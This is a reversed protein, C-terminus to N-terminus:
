KVVIRAPVFELPVPQGSVGTAVGSVTFTAAGPGVTTFSIAGLLGANSAGPQAASRSWAADVRGAAADVRPVFTPTVGGQAMFAGGTVAQARVIAPDFTVSLTISVIQPANAISIPMTFPGAGASFGGDAGATPATLTIRASTSPAAAPGAAASPVAEIPVIGVARPAPTAAAPTGLNATVAAGPAPLSVAGGAAPATAGSDGAPASVGIADLSILPPVASSGLNQGTGIYLPKLDQPSLEHSRVIHPTVIMVLDTQDRQNDANGFLSRLIPIKSFGPLSKQVTRDDERLLGAILTSEGDRLRIAGQANRQVITPFSQGAVDINNGLGSKELRFSELVVEDQYTVRPTFLLNVGVSQYNVSTTPVNAIGGAAASQFTTQPIPISDGLALTMQQGDRGRMQPRALVRTKTNSELLRILSTPTTMYFDAASVGQSITNLNFPPPAFPFEGSSAQNPPALEPSFTFGLAYQSLDLGLKRIFSSDVELIEAEVMVEPKPRDNARIIQEVLQLVPATARVGISNASTNKIFRPTVATGTGVTQTLLTIVDDLSANSVYFTQYYLDEYQTRKQAIDQYVFISKPSQVKFTLQNNQLIQTLVDELSTDQVDVPYSQSLIPNALLERDYSVNIGTLDSITKLLDRVSATSRLAPVRVRPDLRPIPSSQAAQARLNEIRAQPRSSEALDRLRREIEVAKTLALTNTPDLDAALRYEAMAGTWQDQGELERARKVHEAAAIRTVRELAIRLEVREPAAAWAKRYYAVASDYDGHAAAYEANRQARMAACGSLVVVVSAVALASWLRSRRGSTRMREFVGRVHAM